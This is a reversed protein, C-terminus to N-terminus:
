IQSQHKIIYIHNISNNGMYKFEAKLNVSKVHSLPEVWIINNTKRNHSIELM